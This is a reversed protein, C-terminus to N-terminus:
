IGTKQEYRTILVLIFSHYNKAIVPNGTLIYELPSLVMLILFIVFAVILLLIGIIRFLIKM